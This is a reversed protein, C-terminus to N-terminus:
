SSEFYLYALNRGRAPRGRHSHLLPRSCVTCRDLRALHEPRGGHRLWQDVIAGPLDVYFRDDHQRRLHPPFLAAVTASLEFCCTKICPGILLRATERPVHLSAELLDLARPLIGSLAGRWGAHLLGSVGQAAIFLPVCDAVGIGILLDRRNTLIGDAVPPVRPAARDATLVFLESRHVQTPHVPVRRLHDGLREAAVAATREPERRDYLTWGFRLESRGPWPGEQRDFPAEGRITDLLV